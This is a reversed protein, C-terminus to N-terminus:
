LMAASQAVAALLQRFNGLAHNRIADRDFAPISVMIAEDKEADINFHDHWFGVVRERVQWRSFVARMITAVILENMPREKEAYPMKEKRCLPFVEEIGRDLYQLPRMEKVHQKGGKMMMTAGKADAAPDIEYDILLKLKKLRRELQPDDSDKPALQQDIWKEWGMQQAEDLLAPSAGYTVRDLARRLTANDAPLSMASPITTPM